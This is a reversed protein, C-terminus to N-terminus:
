YTTNKKKNIITSICVRQRHQQPFGHSLSLGRRHRSHHDTRHGRTTGDTVNTSRRYHFGEQLIHLCPISVAIPTPFESARTLISLLANAARPERRRKREKLLVSLHSRCLLLVGRFSAPPPFACLEDTVTSRQSGFAQCIPGEYQPPPHTQLNRRLSRAASGDRHASGAAFRNRLHSLKRIPDSRISM